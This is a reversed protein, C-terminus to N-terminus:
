VGMPKLADIYIMIYKYCRMRGQFWTKDFSWLSKIYSYHAYTGLSTERDFHIFITNKKQNRIKSLESEPMDISPAPRYDYVIPERSLQLIVVRIKYHAAFAGFDDHTVVLSGNFFDAQTQEIADYVRGLRGFVNSNLSEATSGFNKIHGANMKILGITLAKAGCGVKPDRERIISLALAKAATTLKLSKRNHANKLYSEFDYLGANLFESNTYGQCAGSYFSGRTFLFSWKIKAISLDLGDNNYKEVFKDFVDSLVLGTIDDIKLGFLMEATITESLEPKLSGVVRDITSIPLNHALLDSIAKQRAYNKLVKAIVDFLQLNTQDRVNVNEHFVASVEITWNSEPDFVDDVIVYANNSAPPRSSTNNFSAM